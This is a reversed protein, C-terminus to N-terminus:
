KVEGNNGPMVGKLLIADIMLKVNPRMGKFCMPLVISTFLQTILSALAAGSAGWLPILVYNLCVNIIAAGFYMYKLYKQNNTSVIWANRAVGLYSFATYWTAIKLPAVAPAFVDGYLTKIVFDGLLVFCASVFCSTYFVIAYLQKNKKLFGSQDTNALKVITPYMSDIIAQLVFVWLTCVTTATSYFGVEEANLMQKLMFKDTQLYIAGIMSSLIYHYSKGLLNRAKKISFSLMPGNYHKYAFLVLVAIVIYDISTAVAFWKVNKGIILLIIKYGSTIIYGILTAITTIKSRYQSQFWYNVTDFVHFVLSLSCLIVVIITLPEGKDVIMVITSLTIVSLISAAIRLLISTGIAVGQQDPFDSFDKIIISNIGLTCFSTFFSVYATGYNILGYNSPGLYRTTIVSVFLSLVMQVIRGCIMWSANKVEKNTFLQNIMRKNTM